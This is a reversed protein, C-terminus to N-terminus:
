YSEKATGDEEQILKIKVHEQCSKCYTDQIDGAEIFNVELTNLNVWAKQEVETSGCTECIWRSNDM